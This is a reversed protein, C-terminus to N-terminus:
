TSSISAATRTSSATLSILESLDNIQLSPDCERRSQMSIDPSMVCSSRQSIWSTTCLCALESIRFL